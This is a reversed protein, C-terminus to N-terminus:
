GKMDNDYDPKAWSFVAYFVAGILAYHLETKIVAAILGITLCLRALYRAVIFAGIHARLRRTM